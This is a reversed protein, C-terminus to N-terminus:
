GFRLRARVPRHDSMTTQPIVDSEVVEVVPTVLIHDTQSHPRHAPYSRGRVARRWGVPLLREVCWGWMNMDGGFAAPADLPPLAARIAPALRWVPDKLLPLHTGVVGFAAGDVSTEVVLLARRGPDRRLQPELRVVNSQCVPLRSLIAIVWDGDGGGGERTMLRVQERRSARAVTFSAAVEYDLADAIEVINGDAADPVWGEQVILVDTDIEKVAAVVDYFPADHGGTGRGMHLNFSGLTVEAM